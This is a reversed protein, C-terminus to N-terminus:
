NRVIEIDGVNKSKKISLSKSYNLINQIVHPRPELMADEHLDATTDASNSKTNKSPTSIKNM